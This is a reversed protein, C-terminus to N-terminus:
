SSKEKKKKTIEMLQEEGDEKEENEETEGQEENEDALSDKKALPFNFLFSESRGSQM